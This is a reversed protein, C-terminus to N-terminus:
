SIIFGTLSKKLDGRKVGVEKTGITPAIEGSPPNKKVYGAKGGEGPVGRGKTRRM